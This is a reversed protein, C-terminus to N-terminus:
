SEVDYQWLLWKTFLEKTNEGWMGIIIAEKDIGKISLECKRETKKEISEITNAISM